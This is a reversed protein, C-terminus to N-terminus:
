YCTLKKCIPVIVIMGCLFAVAVGLFLALLAARESLNYLKSLIQQPSFLLAQLGFFMAGLGVINMITDLPALNAKKASESGHTLAFLLGVFVLASGVTLAYSQFMKAIGEAVTPEKKASLFAFYTYQVLLFPLVMSTFFLYIFLNSYSWAAPSAQGTRIWFGFLLIVLCASFYKIPSLIENWTQSRIAEAIKDPERLVAKLTRLFKLPDFKLIGEIVSEAASATKKDKQPETEAMFAEGHGGTNPL